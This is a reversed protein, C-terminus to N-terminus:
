CIGALGLGPGTTEDHKAADQKTYSVYLHDNLAVVGFPVFGSPITPDIFKGQMAAPKTFNKDFVDVKNNHLDTAYLFNAGNVDLSRIMPPRTIEKPKAAKAM